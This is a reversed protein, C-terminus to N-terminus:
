HKYADKGSPLTFKLLFKISGIVSYIVKSPSFNLTGALMSSKKFFM